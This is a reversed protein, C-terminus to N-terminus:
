KPDSCANLKGIALAVAGVAVPVDGTACSVPHIM